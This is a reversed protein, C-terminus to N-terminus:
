PGAVLLRVADVMEDECPSVDGVVPGLRDSPIAVLQTMVVVHPAGDFEVEIHLRPILAGLGGRWVIPACLTYPMEVGLDAQVRCVIDGSRLRHISGQGAM